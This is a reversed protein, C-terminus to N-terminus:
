HMNGSGIGQKNFFAWFGLFLVGMGVIGIALAVEHNVRGNGTFLLIMTWLYFSATFAHAGAKDKIQQSLEDDVTLGKKEDKLRKLTMIIGFIVILVIGAYLSYDLPNIEAMMSYMGVGAVFMFTLGILLILTVKTSKM